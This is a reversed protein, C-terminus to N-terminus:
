AAKETETYGNVAGDSSVNLKITQAAAKYTLYGNTWNAYTADIKSSDYPIAGKLKTCFDFMSSSDTVKDTNWTDGAYITTLGSCSRFMYRMNTANATNFNSVDLSTLGSCGFFMGYMNTVQSTNLVRLNEIATLNTFSDFMSNSNANARIIGAGNGAIIVATGTRYCKIPGKGDVDANWKEDYSTPIYSDVFTIKKITSKDVSSKYWGSGAALTPPQVKAIVITATAAESQAEAERAAPIKAAYNLALSSSAAIADFSSVDVTGATDVWAGNFGIAIKKDGISANAVTDQTALTWGTGPKVTISAIEVSTSGNNKIYANDAAIVKGASNVTIPLSAPVIVNFNTTATEAAVLKDMCTKCIPHSESDCVAYLHDSYDAESGSNAYVWGSKWTALGNFEAVNYYNPYDLGALGSGCITFSTSCISCEPSEVKVPISVAAFAPITLVAMVVLTLFFGWLRTKFKM